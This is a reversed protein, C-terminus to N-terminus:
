PEVIMLVIGQLLDDTHQRWKQCVRLSSLYSRIFQVWFHDVMLHCHHWSVYGTPKYNFICEIEVLVRLLVDKQLPQAAIVVRKRSPSYRVSGHVVSTHLEQPM